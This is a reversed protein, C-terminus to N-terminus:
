YTHAHNLLSPTDGTKKNKNKTHKQSKKRCLIIIQRTKEKKVGLVLAILLQLSEYSSSRADATSM